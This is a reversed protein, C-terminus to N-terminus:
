LRQRRIRVINGNSADVDVHYRFPQNIVEVNWVQVDHFDDLKAKVATGGGAAQVADAEAQQESIIMPSVIHMPRVLATGHLVLPAAGASAGLSAGLVLALIAHKM